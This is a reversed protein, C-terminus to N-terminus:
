LEEELVKEIRENLRELIRPTAKELGREMFRQEVLNHAGRGENPFVLYGFSGRRNAAGGKSKITFGLNHKESASWKSTKAHQKNRIRNRIRSVPLLKTIEETVMEIGDTHLVENIAEEAKGPLRSLKQELEAIQEYNLEFKASL